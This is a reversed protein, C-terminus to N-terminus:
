KLKYLEKYLTAIQTQISDYRNFLYRLKSFNSVNLSRNPIYVKYIAEQIELKTAIHMKIQNKLTRKNFPFFNIKENNQLKPQM